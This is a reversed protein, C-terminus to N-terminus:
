FNNGIKSRTQYWDSIIKLKKDTPLTERVYYVYMQESFNDIIKLVCIFFIVNKIEIELFYFFVKTRKLLM